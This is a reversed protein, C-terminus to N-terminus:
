LKEIQQENLSTRSISEVGTLINKWNAIAAAKINADKTKEAVEADVITKRTEEWVKHEEEQTNAYYNAANMKEQSNLVKEVTDQLDKIGGITVPFCIPLACTQVGTM